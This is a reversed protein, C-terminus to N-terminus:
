PKRAGKKLTERLKFYTAAGIGRGVASVMYVIQLGLVLGYRSIALDSLYGGILSGFFTVTGILLNYIAAFSGRHMEPTVDLLYTTASAQEFAAVVGWFAGIGILIYINPSFAYALPVSVYSFRVFLLLPKRGLTDALRGAWNTFLITFIGQMVSLMAIELMSAGLVKVQTIAFLPWAISMFFTFTASCVCYRVFDPSREALRAAAVLDAVFSKEPKNNQSKEKVKLMIISSILGCLTAVAVPIILQQRVTGGVSAMIIGSVLTATLSGVSAWMNITANARGLRHQPVLDGILATWAPTAMSGLLAQAAVLFVLQSASNLFLLPVWLLAVILGGFVIFPVRRGLRDSLRGWFIQMINNSINSTSQLWGMESSSAGLERVAYPGIFPNVMGTGLSNAVSRIYVVNLEKTNESPKDRKKM